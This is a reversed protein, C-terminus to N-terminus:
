SIAQSLRIYFVGEELTAPYSSGYAVFVITKIDNSGVVDFETQSVSTRLVKAGNVTAKFGQAQHSSDSWVTRWGNGASETMADTTPYTISLTASSTYGVRATITQDSKIDSPSVRCMIRWTGVPLTTTFTAISLPSQQSLLAAEMTETMVVNNTGDTAFLYVYWGRFYGPLTSISLQASVSLGPVTVINNAAAISVTVGSGLINVDVFPSGATSTVETVQPVTATSGSQNGTLSGPHQLVRITGSADKITMQDGAIKIKKTSTELQNVSIDGAVLDNIVAKDVALAKTAINEYNNMLEWCGPNPTDTVLNSHPAAAVASRGNPAPNTSYKCQYYLGDTPDIVIDYYDGTADSQGMYSGSGGYGSSTWTSIGRMSKGKGEEGDKILPITEIDVFDDYTPNSPDVVPSVLYLFFTLTTTFSDTPIGNQHSEIYTNYSIPTSDGTSLDPDRQFYIYHEATIAAGTNDIAVCTVYSESYVGDADQKVSSCSPVLIFTTGDKGDKVGMLTYVASRQGLSHTGTITIAHKSLATSVAISFAIEGSLPSTNDSPDTHGLTYTVGSPCGTVTIASPTLQTLGFWMRLTTSTTTAVDLIGDPGVGVGDMENTLDAMLPNAGDTVIPITERDILSTEANDTFWYFIIRGASLAASATPPNSSSYVSKTSGNNVSYKLVGYSTSQLSGSGTRMMRDCTVSAPIYQLTNNADYAGKIVDHSPVLHFTAGDEGEAVILITFTVTRTGRASTVAIPIDVSNVGTFDIYSGSPPTLTVTISASLTDQAITAVASIVSSYASPVTPTVSTLEEADMGYYMAVGTHLTVGVSLHEDSGVAVGEAENTIDAVIPSAGTLALAWSYYLKVVRATNNATDAAEQIIVPIEIKGVPVNLKDTVTVVLRTNTTNNDVVEISMILNSDTDYVSAKNGSSTVLYKGASDTLKKGTSELLNGGSYTVPLATGAANLFRISSMDVNSEVRETGWYELVNVTDTAAVAYEEGADFLHAPNSLSVTVAHSLVKMVQVQGSLDQDGSVVCRFDEAIEGDLYYLSSDPDVTYTQSAAGTIAVWTVPGLYYWQFTPNDIGTTQCTLIVQNVPPEDFAYEYSIVSSTAEVRVSIPEEEVVSPTTEEVNSRLDVITIDNITRSNRGAERTLKSIFNEPKEDQLTIRYTPIEAEGENIEISDILIWDQGGDVVDADQLPMYMGELIKEPSAALVKADIEPEYIMRPKSLSDLVESARNYLRQQAATIYIEPMTLDQLIFRDGTVIQYVSNPFYQGISEDSQRVVTLEWRDSAAIYSCKKVTFDRGACWGTKFSITCLGDSIASQQKSIDFGIQRIQVKFTADVAGQVQLTADGVTLYTNTSFGGGDSASIMSIRAKLVASGASEVPVEFSPVSVHYNNYQRREVTAAQEAYKTTGVELWVFIKVSGVAATASVYGSIDPTVVVNGPYSIAGVSTISGFEFNIENQGHAFSLQQSIDNGSLTITQKYKQGDTEGIVGNDTPNVASAVEDVRQADAAFTPNPYYQDTSSMAARIEGANMGEISPFIEEYDGTGDFYITKPRLGYKAITSYDVELYAKRADKEDNTEGWYAPPIMLNPIYVSAADKIAPTLNNYYRAILNRTSGYAYLRTAFDSKGSQQKGIIKLGNGLGYAFVSTTNDADQVNPRGITVTNVGNEVSYVWGIGKWQSYILNLADLCSGDSLSFEKTTTLVDLLDLDYTEVVKIVWQGEGYFSDLNAQIRRAIGYVDEYTAVNPLTTFHITNDSIVLDRFPAIEIDKTAAHLQVDKYIFSDGSATSVAQKTPQPLTYLKYRFGTRTYDVYDGIQWPILTPSAIERFEIYGPKLHTGHYVPTGTYKTTTGDSSKIAFRAM